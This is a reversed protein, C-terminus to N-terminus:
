SFIAIRGISPSGRPGMGPVSATSVSSGIRHSLSLVGPGGSGPHFPIGGLFARRCRNGLVADGTSGPAALDLTNRRQAVHHFRWQGGLIGRSPPDPTPSSSPTWTGPRRDVPVVGARYPLRRFLEGLFRPGEFWWHGFLETDFPTMSVGAPGVNQKRHLHGLLGALDTAHDSARLAARSPDYLSKRALDSGAGSVRWFKLGGPWHLKHFELYWEDGPYGRHRSWVQMSATPERVFVSVNSETNQDGVLYANYASRSPQSTAPRIEGKWSGDFREVGHPVGDYWGLSEGAEAM